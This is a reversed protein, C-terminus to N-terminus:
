WYSHVHEPHPPRSAEEGGLRRRLTDFVEDVARHPDERPQAFVPERGAVLTEGAVSLEARVRFHSGKGRQARRSVREIFVHCATISQRLRELGAVKSRVQDNLADSPEMNRYSVEWLAKV